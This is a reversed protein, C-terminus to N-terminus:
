LPVGRGEGESTDSNGEVDPDEPHGTHGGRDSESSTAGVDGVDYPMPQGDGGDGPFGIQIRRLPGWREGADREEGDPQAGGPNEPFLTVPTVMVDGLANSRLLVWQSDKGAPAAGPSAVADRLTETDHLEESNGRAGTPNHTGPMPGAPLLAFGQLDPLGEVM